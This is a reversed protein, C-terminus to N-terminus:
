LALVKNNEHSLIDLPVNLSMECLSRGLVRNTFVLFLRCLPLPLIYLRRLREAVLRHAIVVVHRQFVNKATNSLVLTM